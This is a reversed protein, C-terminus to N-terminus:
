FEDWSKRSDGTIPIDEGLHHPKVNFAVELYAKSSSFLERLNNYANARYVRKDAKLGCVDLGLSKGIYLARPLHFEQTVVIMKNVKFIDRARYFSDYTDFGAHDLFIDGAKVGRSLLFKRVANVEDYYKKGHDGSVLFKEVKGQEYLELATLVRDELVHSLRGDSFVKSGLILVTEAPPISETDEYILESTNKNIENKAYFSFATFSVFSIALAIIVTRLKKSSRLRKYALKVFRM